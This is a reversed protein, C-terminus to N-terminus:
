NFRRGSSEVARFAPEVDIRPFRDIARHDAVRVAVVESRTRERVQTRISAGPDDRVPQAIRRADLRRRVPLRDRDVTYADRKMRGPVNEPGRLHADLM